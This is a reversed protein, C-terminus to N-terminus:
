VILEKRTAAPIAQLGDVARSVRVRNIRYVEPFGIHLSRAHSAYKSM